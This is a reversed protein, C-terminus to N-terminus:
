DQEIVLKIFTQDKLTPISNTVEDFDGGLTTNTGTVTYGSNTWVPDSVLDTDTELYYVLNTDDNRQAHIYLMSGGNEGFTPINGDVFGNTPDGGLGYEYLNILGDDDDDGQDGYVLSYTNSWGAYGYEPEPGILGVVQFGAIATQGGGVPNGLTFTFTNDTINTYYVFNGGVSPANSDTSTIFNYTLSVGDIDVYRDTQGTASMPTYTDGDFGTIYVFVEYGDPYEANLDSLTFTAPSGTAPFNRIGAIFATNAAFTPGGYNTTTGAAGATSISVASGQLNAGTIYSGNAWNSSAVIGWVENSDIASDGDTAGGNYNVSLVKDMYSPLEPLGSAQVGFEMDDIAVSYAYGTAGNKKRVRVRMYEDHYAALTSADLTVTFQEWLNSTSNIVGSLLVSRSIYTGNTTPSTWLELDVTPATSGGQSNTTTVMWFSAEYTETSDLQVDLDQAFDAQGGGWRQQFQVARAGAYKYSTIPACVWANGEGTSFWPTTGVDPASSTLTEFGSDDLLNAEVGAQVRGLVALVVLMTVRITIKMNM